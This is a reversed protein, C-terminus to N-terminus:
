QGVIHCETSTFWLDWPGKIQGHTVSPAAFNGPWGRDMPGGSAADDISIIEDEMLSISLAAINAKLTNISRM